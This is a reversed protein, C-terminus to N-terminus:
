TFPFMVSLNHKEQFYYVCLCIKYILFNQLIKQLLSIMCYVNHIIQYTANGYPFSNGGNDRYIDTDDSLQM